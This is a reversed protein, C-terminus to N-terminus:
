KIKHIIVLKVQSIITMIKLIESLQKCQLLTKLLSLVIIQFQVLYHIQLQLLGQLHSLNTDELSSNSPNFKINSGANSIQNIESSASGTEVKIESMFRGRLDNNKNKINM